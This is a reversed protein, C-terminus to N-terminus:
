TLAGPPSPSSLQPRWKSLLPLEFLIRNNNLCQFPKEKILDGTKCQKRSHEGKLPQPLERQDRRYRGLASKNHNAYTKVQVFDAQPAKFM